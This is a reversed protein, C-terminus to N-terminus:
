AVDNLENPFAKCRVYIAANMLDEGRRTVHYRYSHPVSAILGHARLLQLQRSTFLRRVRAQWGHCVLNM